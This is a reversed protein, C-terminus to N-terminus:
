PMLHARILRILHDLENDSAVALNLQEGFILPQLATFIEQNLGGYQGQFSTLRAMLSFELKGRDTLDLYQDIIRYMAEKDRPLLGNLALLNSASDSYFITDSEIAEILLRIESVVQEESAERFSGDLVAAKLPTGSFVELTRLRIFDPSSENIVRATELAHEESWEAGGLGPMIYVSCSLGAERTKRCGQIHKEATEGKNMFSLVRDSGSELGFHIRHLGAERFALLDELPKRAASVTRGYITFRKVSPFSKKIRAMVDTFFDTSLILGDADGLFCTEGGGLRWSLVHFISDQLSLEEKFWPAFWDDDLPAPSKREGKDMRRILEGVKKFAEAQSSADIIGEEHLMDDIRSIRDIDEQVEDITRRSFVANRKYVPCFSCRNWGCNRTLRVTLSGNETPPRIHCIEFPELPHNM